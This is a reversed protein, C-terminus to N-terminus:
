TFLPSQPLPKVPATVIVLVPELAKVFHVTVQVQPPLWAIVLLQFTLTVELPLATVAVLM